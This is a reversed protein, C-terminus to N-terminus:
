MKRGATAEVTELAEVTGVLAVKATGAETNTIVTIVKNQKGSKGKSNFSASIVNKEGPMIPEKPFNSVTCGCTTKVDKIVLPETGNNVFEFDHSVKEGSKIMGFDHNNELFSITPGSALDAIEAQQADMSECSALLLISAVLVSFLSTTLVRM